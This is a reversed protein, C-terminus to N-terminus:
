IEQKTVGLRSRYSVIREIIEDPTDRVVVKKGSLLSITLDPTQEMSEIMHPNIWYTKGDLRTVSIM